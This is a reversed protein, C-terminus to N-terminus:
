WISLFGIMLTGCIILVAAIQLDAPWNGLPREWAVRLVRAVPVGNREALASSALASSALATFAAAAAALAAAALHDFTLRM